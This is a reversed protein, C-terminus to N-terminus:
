GRTRRWRRHCRVGRRERAGRPRADTQRIRDAPVREATSGDSIKAAAPRDFKIRYHSHWEVWIGALRCAPHPLDRFLRDVRSPQRQPFTPLRRLAGDPLARTCQATAVKLAATTSTATM